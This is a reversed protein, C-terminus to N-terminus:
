ILFSLPHRLQHQLPPVGGLLDPVISSLAPQQTSRPPLAAAADAPLGSSVLHAHPMLLPAEAWGRAELPPLVIRDAVAYQIFSAEMSGHFNRLWSAHVPAAACKRALLVLQNQPLFSMAQELLAWQRQIRLHLSKAWLAAGAYRPHDRHILPPSAKQKDFFKKM